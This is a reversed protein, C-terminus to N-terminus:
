CEEDSYVLSYDLNLSNYMDEMTLDFESDSSNTLQHFRSSLDKKELTTLETFEISNVFQNYNNILEDDRNLKSLGGAQSVKREYSTFLYNSAKHSIDKYKATLELLKSNNYYSIAKNLTDLKLSLQRIEYEIPKSSKWSKTNM